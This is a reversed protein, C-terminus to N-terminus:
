ADTKEKETKVYFGYTTPAGAAMWAGTSHTHGRMASQTDLATGTYDM